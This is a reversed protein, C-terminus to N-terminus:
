SSRRRSLHIFTAALAAVLVAGKIIDFAYYPLNLMTLGNLLVGILVAGFFTGIVNPKGAGLVSYGVFVAAVAEMLLPSGADIQGSGVRASFLIGGVAAFVGSLVYALTRVRNVAIGSLRAAERNGGTVYMQRGWRTYTLFVHVLIVAGIMLLVPVPIGLLKGQGIWLFESTFKGPAKTGDTMQMNNYISFGKTYTKHVGGIIYMVALTALLDPIRIKVILLANLLGVLVGILLPLTLVAILPMQYWVMLTATVVTTLSVTSGASLDFGDVIQSFTVGIAIFTVISISRLIDAMNDYSLFNENLLSFIVIVGAIVLLAGYRYLYDLKTTNTNM